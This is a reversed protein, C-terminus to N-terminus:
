LLITDARQISSAWKQYLVAQALGYVSM